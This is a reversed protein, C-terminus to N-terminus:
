CIQGAPHRAQRHARHAAREGAGEHLRRKAGAAAAYARRRRRIVASKRPSAGGGKASRGAASVCGPCPRFGPCRLVALVRESVPYRRAAGEGSLAGSAQAGPTRRRQATMADRSYRAALKSCNVSTQHSGALLDAGERGGLPSRICSLLSPRSLESEALRPPPENRVRNFATAGAPRGASLVTAEAPKATLRGTV